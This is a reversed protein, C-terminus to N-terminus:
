EGSRVVSWRTLDFVRSPLVPNARLDVIEQEQVLHGDHYVVLRSPVPVDLMDTFETFRVDSVRGPARPDRQIVRVVRWRSADVWFQPSTEDGEAAGVVWVRRGNFREGRLLAMRVRAVDLWMITTDISQAFVDYAMLTALDVRNATSVRRGREFVTFRQRNRVYSTRRSAPLLDVRIRGPLSAYVRSQTEM